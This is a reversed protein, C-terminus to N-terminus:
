LMNNMAKNYIHKYQSALARVGYKNLALNRAYHSQTGMEWGNTEKLLRTLDEVSDKEFLHSILTDSVLEKHPTIDSLLPVVGCSIAELVTNPLGEALSASILIDSVQIYNLPTDTHGIFLINRNYRAREKLFEYEPGGGVIILQGLSPHINKFADIILANNKRPLLLGLVLFTRIDKLGLEKRLAKKIERSLPVFYDTDVGNQVCEMKIGYDRLYTDQMSKSCAVRIPIRKITYICIKRVIPRLFTPFLESVASPESRITSVVKCKGRSALMCIINVRFGSCHVIDINKSCIVRRLQRVAKILNFKSKINLQIVEISNEKFRSIWNNKEEDQDITVLVDEISNDFKMGMLINLAQNVPGSSVAHSVVYLANM